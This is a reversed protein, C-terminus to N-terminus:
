IATLRRISAELKDDREALEKCVHRLANGEETRSAYIEDLRVECEEATGEFIEVTTDLITKAIVTHTEGETHTDWEVVHDSELLGGNQCRIIM